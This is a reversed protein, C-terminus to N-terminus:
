SRKAVQYITTHRLAAIEVGDESAVVCDVVGYHHGKREYTDMFARFERRADGVM